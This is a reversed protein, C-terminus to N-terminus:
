EIWNEHTNLRPSSPFACVDHINMNCQLCRCFNSFLCAKHSFQSYFDKASLSTIWLFIFNESVDSEYWLLNFSSLKESEKFHMINQYSSIAYMISNTHTDQCCCFQKRQKILDWIVIIFCCFKLLADRKWVEHSWEEDKEDIGFNKPIGITYM